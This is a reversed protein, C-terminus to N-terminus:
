KNLKEFIAATRNVGSSAAIAEHILEKNHSNRERIVEKGYQYVLFVVLAGLLLPLITLFIGMPSKRKKGYSKKEEEKQGQIEEM